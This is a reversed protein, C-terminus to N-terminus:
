DIIPGRSCNIIRVGDKMKGITEKNILHSTQDNLSTHLTIFDSQAYIEDLSVLEIGLKQAYEVAIFPDFAIVKMGFALGRTAVEKGIRGLGVVGLVKGSIQTGIFKKREWQKQKLSVYAQPLNRALSLILTWTQEAASLTNGGPVNIVIIGQETAAKLDINDVGAGARGILCLKKGAKIVEVNVKTESRVLLVDYDPIIALLEAAPLGPRYDLSYKPNDLLSALGTKVIPDSVLIKIM